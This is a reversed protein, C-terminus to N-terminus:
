ESRIFDPFFAASCNPMQPPRRQRLGNGAHVIASAVSSTERALRATSAPQLAALRHEAGVCDSGIQCDDFFDVIMDRIKLRERDCREFGMHARMFVGGSDALDDETGILVGFSVDMVCDGTEGSEEDSVM